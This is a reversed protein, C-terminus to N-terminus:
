VAWVRFAVVQEAFVDPRSGGGVGSEPFTLDAVRGNVDSTSAARSPAALRLRGDSETGSEGPHATVALFLEALM